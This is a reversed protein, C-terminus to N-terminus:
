VSVCCEHVIEAQFLSLKLDSEGRSVVRNNASLCTKIQLVKVSFLVFIFIWYVIFGNEEQQRRNKKKLEQEGPQQHHQLLNERITISCNKFM